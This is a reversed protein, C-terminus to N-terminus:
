DMVRSDMFGSYALYEKAIEIIEGERTELSLSIQTFGDRKAEEWPIARGDRLLVNGVTNFHFKSREREYPIDYELYIHIRGPPAEYRTLPRYQKQPESFIDRFLASYGYSARDFLLLREGTDIDKAIIKLPSFDFGSIYPFKGGSTPFLAGYYWIEFWEGGTDSRLVIGDESSDKIHGELYTPTLSVM